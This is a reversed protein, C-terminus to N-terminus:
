SMHTSWMHRIAYIDLEYIFEVYPTAVILLRRLIYARKYPEKMPSQQLLSRYNEAADYVVWEHTRRKYAVCWIHLVDYICCMMYSIHLVHSICCMIRQPSNCVHHHAEYRIHQVDSTNCIHSILCWTHYQMTMCSCVEYIFHSLHSAACEYM